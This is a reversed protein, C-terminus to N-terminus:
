REIISRIHVLSSPPRCMCTPHLVAKRGVVGHEDRQGLREFNREYRAVRPEGGSGPDDHLQVWCISADFTLM